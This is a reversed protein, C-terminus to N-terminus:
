LGLCNVLSHRIRVFLMITSEALTALKIRKPSSSVTIRRVGDWTFVRLNDQWAWEPRKTGMSHFHFKEQLGFFYFGYYLITWVICISCCSLFVPVNDVLSGDKCIVFSLKRYVGNKM